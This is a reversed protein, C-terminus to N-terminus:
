PREGQAEPQPPLGISAHDLVYLTKGKDKKIIETTRIDAAQKKGGPDTFTEEWHGATAIYGDGLPIATQSRLTLRADKPLDRVFNAVLKEIEARGNAEEGQGPWVVRADPAYLALIAAADRTNVAREFAKSHATADDAPDALAPVAALVVVVLVTWTKM